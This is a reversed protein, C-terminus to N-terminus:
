MSYYAGATYGWSLSPILSQNRLAALYSPQPDNMTSFNSPEPDLGISGLWFDPTAIGAVVQDQLTPGGGGNYGLSVTDHGFDGNGTYNLNGEL